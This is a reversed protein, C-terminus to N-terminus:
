RRVVFAILNNTGQPFPQTGFGRAILREAPVGEVVLFDRVAVARAQTLMYNLAEPGVSDVRALIELNVDPDRTLERALRRLGLQSEATLDASQEEFTVRPFQINAKSARALRSSTRVPHTPTPSGYRDFFNEIATFARVVVSAIREEPEKSSLTKLDPAPLEKREVPQPQPIAREWPSAAVAPPVAETRAAIPEQSTTDRLTTKATDRVAPESSAPTTQRPAVQAIEPAASSQEKAPPVVEPKDALQEGQRTWLLAGAIVFLVGYLLSTLVRKRRLSAIRKSFAYRLAVIFLVLGAAFSFLALIGRIDNM